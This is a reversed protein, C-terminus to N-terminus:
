NLKFFVNFTGTISRQLQDMMGQPVILVWCQHLQVYLQRKVTVVSQDSNRGGDTSIRPLFIFFFFSFLFIM